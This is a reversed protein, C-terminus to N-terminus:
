KLNNILKEKDQALYVYNGSVVMDAGCDKLKPAIKDNIGGDVEIKFGLNNKSRYDKLFKIKEFVCDDFEQGSKGTPVSMILAIDLLPLYPVLKQVETKPEIALGVLTNHSKVYDIYEKAENESEFSELQASVINVGALIYQKAYQLANKTMLHCDLPLTTNQNINKAYEPMFCKTANYEGDCVDLHAFDAFKEIQKIFELYKEGAPMMSISTKM